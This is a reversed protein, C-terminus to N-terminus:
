HPQRLYTCDLARIACSARVLPRRASVHTAPGGCAYREYEERSAESKKSEPMFPRGLLALSKSCPRAMLADARLPRYCRRPLSRSRKESACCAMVQLVSGNLCHARTALLQEATRRAFLLIVSSNYEAKFSEFVQTKSVKWLSNVIDAWRHDENSRRRQRSSAVLRKQPVRPVWKPGM